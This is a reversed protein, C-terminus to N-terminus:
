IVKYNGKKKKIKGEKHKIPTIKFYILVNNEDMIACRVKPIKGSKCTITKVILNLINIKKKKLKNSTANKM